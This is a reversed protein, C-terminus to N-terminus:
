PYQLKWWSNHINYSGEHIIPITAEKMFQPYQLKWWYKFSGRKWWPGKEDRTVCNCLEHVDNLSLNVKGTVLGHEQKDVLDQRVIQWFKNGEKRCHKWPCLIISLLLILICIPEKVHRITSLVGKPSTMQLGNGTCDENQTKTGTHTYWHSCGSSSNYTISSIVQRWTLCLGYSSPDISKILPGVDPCGARAQTLVHLSFILAKLRIAQVIHCAHLSFILAKLRIAQMHSAIYTNANCM